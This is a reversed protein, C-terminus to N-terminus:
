WSRTRLWLFEPLHRDPGVVRRAVECAQAFTKVRYVYPECLVTWGSSSDLSLHPKM